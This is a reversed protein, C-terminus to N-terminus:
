DNDSMAVKAPKRGNLKILRLEARLEDRVSTAPGPAPSTVAVRSSARGLEESLADTSLLHRRGVIAAGSEGSDIRRRVAACHKRRGLPSASQTIM